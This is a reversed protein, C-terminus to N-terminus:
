VPNDCRATVVVKGRCTEPWKLQVLDQNAGVNTAVSPFAFTTANSANLIDGKAIVSSVTRAFGDFPLYDAVNLTWTQANSAQNFELVVPNITLFTVGNFTNGEFLINRARSRDLPAISDDIKDIRDVIGSFTNFTNGTVSLGQIFHGVGYPKIVIWSFWSPANSAVFINSTFTAGGFSYENSFDPNSDHENTWEFFCNDVYNGTVVSNINEQTFVIGALRTSDPIGDGQFWHNGVILHGTGNMVATHRFRQFRNNRIKTDNANVNFGISVRQGAPVSQEDSVFHCRDIQLDQCGRGISTIGRDKPRTVFCDRVQFTEGSACLMIGSGLGGCQFEIDSLTFKSLKSFTSFDLAYKFREFTYTQSTAPGYLRQSLTIEGTGVNKSQVYVERGVGNGTVLSGVAINAVNAVATLKLPNNVSYNATSTATDTNWNTSALLNFQGNRVVRRIEFIDKNNVAAQMDIPADIEIRRGCLDLSEHDSYNLLAQFAKKFALVEDGFADIYGNLDFNRILTLRSATDMTVTGVFRVESNFTFDGSLKYVGEPVLVERGAAAADAATFAALNDTTGDGIAGYDRVDVWDMMTRLFASTIDEIEIDDIRVIGGNQGTLDLGFHGYIPESGWAMDVGNRVGTGIIASVTVVEGYSTLTVSPGTEVLGAVHVGGSKGAWAAIRVSPLNGSIAKVRATVRLYCGPLIPTEGTYRLKQTADTKVLELSGGFDQDAPVYAANTAGNYTASGPIGDGSSWVDLGGSFSPPTLVLGDTIAKNMSVGKLDEIRTRPRPPMLRVCTERFRDM